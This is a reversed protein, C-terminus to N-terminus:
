LDSTLRRNLNKTAYRSDAEKKPNTNRPNALQHDLADRSQIVAVDGSKYNVHNTKGLFENSAWSIPRTSSFHQLTYKEDPLNLDVVPSLQVIALYDMGDIKNITNKGPTLYEVVNQKDIYQIRERYSSFQPELPLFLNALLHDIRGGTAGFVSLKEPDFKTLCTKVGMQTDTYDKEPPFVHIEHIRQKVIKYEENTSSDFDGIAIQPVIGHQLLVITGHDTAVWPENRRKAVLDFPILEAPGGVMLNVRRM